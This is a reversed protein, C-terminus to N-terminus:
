HVTNQGLLPLRQAPAPCPAALHHDRNEALGHTPCDQTTSVNHVPLPRSHRSMDTSCLHSNKLLWQLVRSDKAPMLSVPDSIPPASDRVTYSPFFSPMM